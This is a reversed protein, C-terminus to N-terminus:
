RSGLAPITAPDNRIKEIWMRDPGQIREIAKSLNVGPSESELSTAIQIDQAAEVNMGQKKRALGRYVYFRPDRPNLDIARTLYAITNQFDNKTFSNKALSYYFFSAHIM